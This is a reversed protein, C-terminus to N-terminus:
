AASRSQSNIELSDLKECLSQFLISYGKNPIKGTREQIEYFIYQAVMKTGLNVKREILEQNSSNKNDRWSDILDYLQEALQSYAFLDKTMIVAGLKTLKDLLTKNRREERDVLCIM